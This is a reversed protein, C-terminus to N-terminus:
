ASGCHRGWGVGDCCSRVYRGERERGTVRSLMRRRPDVSVDGAGARSGNMTGKSSQVRHGLQVIGKPRRTLRARRAARPCALLSHPRSRM